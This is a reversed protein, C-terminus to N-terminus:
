VKGDRNLDVPHRIRQPVTAQRRKGGSNPLPANTRTWALAADLRLVGFAGGDEYTSM